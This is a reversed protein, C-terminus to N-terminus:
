GGKVKNQSAKSPRGRKRKQPNVPASADSRPACHPPESPQQPPPAFACPLKEAVVHHEDFADSNNRVQIQLPRQLGAHHDESDSVDSPSEFDGDEENDTILGPNIDAHPSLGYEPSNTMSVDQPSRPSQQTTPSYSEPQMHFSPNPSTTFSTATSDPVVAPMKTAPAQPLRFIHPGSAPVSKSKSAGTPRATSASASNGKQCPSDVEDADGLPPIDDLNLRQSADAVLKSLNLNLGTKQFLASLNPTKQSPVFTSDRAKPINLALPRPRAAAKTSAPAGSSSPQISNVLAAAADRPQIKTQNLPHVLTSCTPASALTSTPTPAAPTQVTPTVPTQSPASPTTVPIQDDDIPQGCKQAAAEHSAFGEGHAIRCHNLFGQVSSINEKQCWVCVLKVMKNDSLRKIILPGVLPKPTPYSSPLAHHPGGISHRGSRSAAFSTRELPRSARGDFYSRTCSAPALSDAPVSDFSPDPLLWHSYHRSYAGDAVGFATPHLPRTFGPAPELAAGQGTSAHYPTADAGPTGPYPIHKCRRIQELAIQAKAMEQEILRLEDHRLLIEYNIHSEIKQRARDRKSVTSKVLLAPAHRSQPQHPDPISSPSSPAPAAAVTPPQISSSSAPMTLPAQSTAVPTPAASSPPTVPHIARAVSTDLKQRKWDSTADDLLPSADSDDPDDARKRKFVTFFSGAPSAHLPHPRNCAHKDDHAPFPNLSRIAEM